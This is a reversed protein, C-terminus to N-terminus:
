QLTLTVTTSHLLTAGANSTATANVTINYIRPQSASQDASSVRDGCGSLGATLMAISGFALWDRRRRPLLVFGLLAAVLLTRPWEVSATKITQVTMSFTQSGSGPPLYAPTFTATAGTPLGSAALVIPSSLAGNLPAEAFFFTASSGANVTVAASGTAAISFDAGAASGVTVVVPPSSSPLFNGDGAYSASLTHSGTSLAASSFQADGTPTAAVTAVSTGGDLLAVSGSPQGATTTAVHALLGVTLAVTSAARSITLAAPATTLVYDSAATGSLSASIPYTGAGSNTTATSAFTVQVAGLDQALVGTLTGTLAPISLGYVQSVANPTATLPAPTVALMLPNSQLAGHSSDGPYKATLIHTGAPLTAVSLAAVNGTLAVSSLVAAGDLFVVSGTGSAGGLTATVSGNGYVTTVPGNLALGAPSVAGIGAITHIIGAADVQRVRGNDSDSMTALGAPSLVVARPTDLLALTASAGDGAFGEAPSGAVTTIQGSIADVRRIRNNGADVLYLNGLADLTLGQPLQLAAATSIGGSFGVIGTGAFSTIIGTSADVRRVRQNHADSLYLDGAADIALGSPTDLSALPALGSDGQSGQVGNGAITTVLGTAHDIRRVVNRHADAFYLDGAANFALAAPLDVPSVSATLGDAGLGATGNGAVTSIVGTAVDVKRIRHNHTDALFLNGALDIALAGPSDLLAATAPGNDGAFGQTGTGAVISLIGGSTLKRVLHNGAESFYLTGQSDYALGSPLLLPTAAQGLSIASWLSLLLAAAWLPGRALRRPNSSSQNGM